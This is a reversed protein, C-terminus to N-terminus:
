FFHRSRILLIKLIQICVSARPCMHLAASHELQVVALIPNQHVVEVTRTAIFELPRLVQLRKCFFWLGEALVEKGTVARHHRHSGIFQLDQLLFPAIHQLMLELARAIGNDAVFMSSIGGYQHLAVSEPEKSSVIGGAILRAVHHFVPQEVGGGVHLVPCFIWRGKADVVELPGVAMLGVGSVHCATLVSAVVPVDGGVPAADAHGNAVFNGSRVFVCEPFGQEGVLIAEGRFVTPRADIGSDEDVIVACRIDDPTVFLAVVGLQLVIHRLNVALNMADIYWVEGLGRPHMFIIALIIQGVGTLPGFLNCVGYGVVDAAWIGGHADDALNGAVGVGGMRGDDFETISPEEEGVVATQRIASTVTTTDNGLRHAVVGFPADAANGSGGFTDALHRLHTGIDHDIVLIGVVAEM